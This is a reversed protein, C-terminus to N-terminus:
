PTLLLVKIDFNQPKFEGNQSQVILIKPNRSSLCKSAKCSKHCNSAHNPCNWKGQGKQEKKHLTM